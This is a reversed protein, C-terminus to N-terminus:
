ETIFLSIKHKESVDQTYQVTFKVKVKSGNVTSTLHINVPTPVALRQDVISKWSKYQIFRETLPAFIGRDVYGNPLAGPVSLFDVMNTATENNLKPFGPWPTTLTPMHNPYLAVAVVSDKKLSMIQKIEDAAQPCNVCRVGTIDEILVAKHQAQPVTSTIYT